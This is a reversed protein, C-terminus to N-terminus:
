KKNNDLEEMQYLSDILGPRAVLLSDYVGMGIKDSKLSDLYRRFQKMRETVYLSAPTNSHNDSPLVNKPILIPRIRVHSDASKGANILVLATVTVYSFIFVVLIVKVKFSSWNAAKANLWDAWRRQLHEAKGSFRQSLAEVVTIRNSKRRFLKWM